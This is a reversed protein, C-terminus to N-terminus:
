STEGPPQTRVHAWTLVSPTVTRPVAAQRVSRMGARLMWATLDSARPLAGRRIARRLLSSMGGVTGERIGSVVLLLGGPRVMRRFTRLAALPEEAKPLGTSCLLAQFTESAFPADEAVANVVSIKDAGPTEGSLKSLCRRAARRGAFAATIRTVREQRALELVLSLPPEFLALHGAVPALAARILANV